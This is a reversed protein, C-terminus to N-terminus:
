ISYELPKETITLLNVINNAITKKDFMTRYKERLPELDKQIKEYNHQFFGIKAVISGPDPDVLYEELFFEKATTMDKCVIPVSGCVISEILPLCIGEIHSTVFCYKHRNYLRNLVSDEVVNLWNGYGPNESGAITLYGQQGMMELAERILYFRKNSDNVRGVALYGCDRSAKLDLSVDKMPNYIVHSHLQLYYKLDKKVTKSICTLIDGKKLLFIAREFDRPLWVHRPIDLTNLILTGGFKEKYQIAEEHGGFDNSYIFDPIEEPGCETHGLILLGERIRPLQCTFGNAGFLKFNM